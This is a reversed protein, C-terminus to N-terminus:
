IASAKRGTSVGDIEDKFKKYLSLLETTNMFHKCTDDM